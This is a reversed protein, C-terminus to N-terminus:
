EPDALDRESEVTEIYFQVGPFAKVLQHKFRNQHVLPMYNITGISKSPIVRGSVVDIGREYAEEFVEGFYKDHLEEGNAMEKMINGHRYVWLIVPEDDHGIDYYAKGSPMRNFVKATVIRYASSIIYKM